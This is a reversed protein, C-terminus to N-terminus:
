ATWFSLRTLLSILFQKKKTHRTNSPAECGWRATCQLLILELLDSCYVHMVAQHGSQKRSM